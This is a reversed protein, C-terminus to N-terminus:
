LRGKVRHGGQDRGLGLFEPLVRVPSPWRKESCALKQLTADVESESYIRGPFVSDLMVLITFSTKVNSKAHEKTEMIWHPLM